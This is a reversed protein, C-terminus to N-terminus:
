VTPNCHSPTVPGASVPDNGGSEIPAAPGDWNMISTFPRIRDNLLAVPTASPTMFTSVSTNKEDTMVGSDGGARLKVLSGCILYSRRVFRQNKVIISMGLLEDVLMPSLGFRMRMATDSAALLPTIVLLVTHLKKKTWCFVTPVGSM